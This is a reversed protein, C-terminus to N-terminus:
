AFVENVPRRNEGCISSGVVLLPSFLHNTVGVFNDCGNKGICFYLVTLVYATLVSRGNVPLKESNYLLDTFFKFM